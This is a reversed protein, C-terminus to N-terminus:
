GVQQSKGIGAAIVKMGRRVHHRMASEALTPDGECLSHALTEHWDWPPHDEDELRKVIPQWALRSALWRWLTLQRRVIDALAPMGTCEVIFSHFGEHLDAYELRDPDPSSFERDVRAAMTRLEAKQLPTVGSAFLRAAEGELVERVVLNGRIDLDGPTCVRTGVRPRCRVLGEHELRQLAETVPPLSMGLQTALGRRTLPEGFPLQGQVIASRVAVYARDSLKPGVQAQSSDVSAISSHVARPTYRPM